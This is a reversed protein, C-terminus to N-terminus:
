KMLILNKGQEFFQRQVDALEPTVEYMEFMEVPVSAAAASLTSKDAANGEEDLSEESIPTELPVEPDKPLM